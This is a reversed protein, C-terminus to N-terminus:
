CSGEPVAMALKEARAARQQATSAWSTLLAFVAVEGYAHAIPGMGSNICANAWANMQAKTPNEGLFANQERDLIAQAWALEKDPTLM